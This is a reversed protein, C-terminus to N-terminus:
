FLTRMVDHHIGARRLKARDSKRPANPPQKLRIIPQHPPTKPSMPEQPHEFSPACARLMPAGMLPLPNLPADAGGEREEVMRRFIELGHEGKILYVGSPLRSVKAKKEIHTDLASDGASDDTHTNFIWMQNYDTFQSSNMLFYFGSTKL